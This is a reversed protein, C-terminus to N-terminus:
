GVTVRELTGSVTEGDAVVYVQGDTFTVEWTTTKQVTPELARLLADEVAYIELAQKRHIDKSAVEDLVQQPNKHTVVVVRPSQKSAKHLREASPVGIEVWTKLRGDLTRITIAPEDPDSLGGKSFAIGEETLFAYALVRTILFPASESPHCAVRLDLTEYVGRDVHSLAVHFRYVTAQLAM